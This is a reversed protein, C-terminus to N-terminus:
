PTPSAVRLADPSQRDDSRELGPGHWLRGNTKCGDTKYGDYVLAGLFHFLSSSCCTSFAVAVDVVVRLSAERSAISLMGLKLAAADLGLSASGRM